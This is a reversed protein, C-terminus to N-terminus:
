KRLQPTPGSRTTGTNRSRERLEQDREQGDHLGPAGIQRQNWAQGDPSQGGHDFGAVRGQQHRIGRQDRAERLMLQRHDTQIPIRFLDRTAVVPVRPWQRTRFM